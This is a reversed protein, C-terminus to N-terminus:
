KKSVNTGVTPLNKTGVLAEELALIWSDIMREVALQMWTESLV